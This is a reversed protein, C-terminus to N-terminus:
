AGGRTAPGVSTADRIVTIAQNPCAQAGMEAWPEHEVPVELRHVDILGDEDLPYVDPCFRHCIGNGDCLGPHVKIRM